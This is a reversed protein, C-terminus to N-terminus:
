PFLTAPHPANAEARSEMLQFLMQGDTGLAPHMYDLFTFLITSPFYDEAVDLQKALRTPPAPKAQFPEGAPNTQEFTEVVAWLEPLPRSPKGTEYPDEEPPVDSEQLSIAQHQWWEHIVKYYIPLYDMPPDGMGIGDRLMLIDLVAGGTIEALNKAVIEPSTRGRFFASVAVKRDPDNRKLRESMGTIYRKILSRAPAQRWNQDDIEDPVYYGAWRPEDGFRDLLALQLRENRAMRILFFDRVVKESGQLQHWYAPDNALGVYINLATERNAEFLTELVPYCEPYSPMEESPYLFYMVPAEASWQVIVTDLGAQKIVKLDQKWQELSLSALERNLQIFTGHVAFASSVATLLLPITIGFFRKM